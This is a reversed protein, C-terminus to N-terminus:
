SECLWDCPLKPMKSAPWPLYGATKFVWYDYSVKTILAILLIVETAILYYVYDTWDHPSQCVKIEQLEMIRQPINRCQIEVYDPIDKSRQLLWLKLVKASNCDCILKNGGLFIQRGVISDLVNTLLYEPLRKINNNRLYLRQFHDMFNTGELDHMSEIHNNDALLKVISQYTPNNHFHEGIVTINNNTINLQFTNEPLKPPLETLGLNSCDVRCFIKNKSPDGASLMHEPACTCNGKGPIVPCDTYFRRIIDIQNIAIYDTTNFWNFTSDMLCFSSNPAVFKFSGRFITEVLNNCLMRKNDRIDMTINQNPGLKPIQTLNNKSLNLFKLFIPTKMTINLLNNNSLNLCKVKSMRSFTKVIRRINGDTIALSQLTQFIPSSLDIETMTVNYIHLNTWNSTNPCSSIMSLQTINCCYWNNQSANSNPHQRCQCTNIFHSTQHHTQNTNNNNFSNLCLNEEMQFCYDPATEVQPAIQSKNAETTALANGNGSTASGGSNTISPIVIQAEQQAPSEEEPRGRVTAGGYIILAILTYYKLYIYM